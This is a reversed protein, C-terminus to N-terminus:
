AAELKPSKAEEGGGEKRGAGGKHEEKEEEEEVVEEKKNKWLQEPQGGRGGGGPWRSPFPSFSTLLEDRLNNYTRFIECNHQTLSRTVVRLSDNTSNGDLHYRLQM